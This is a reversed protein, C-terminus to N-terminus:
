RPSPRMPIGEEQSGGGPEGRHPSWSAPTRLLPPPKACPSSANRADVELGLMATAIASGKTTTLGDAPRAGSTQWRRWGIWWGRRRPAPAGGGGGARPARRAGEHCRLGSRDM